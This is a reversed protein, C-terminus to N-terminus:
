RAQVHLDGILRRSVVVVAMGMVETASLAPILKHTIWPFVDVLDGDRQWARFRKSRAHRTAGTNRPSTQHDLLIRYSYRAPKTNWVTM